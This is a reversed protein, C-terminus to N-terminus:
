IGMLLEILLALAPSLCIFIILFMAAKIGITETKKEKKIGEDLIQKIEEYSYNRDITLYGEGIKEKLCENETKFLSLFRQLEDENFRFGNEQASPRKVKLLVKITNMKNNEVYRIKIAEECSNKEISINLLNEIPIKYSIMGDKVILKSKDFYLYRNHAKLMLLVLLIMLIESYAWYMDSSKSLIYMIIPASIMIFCAIFIFYYMIKYEYKRKIKIIDNKYKVIYDLKEENEM